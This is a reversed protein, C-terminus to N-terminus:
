GVFHYVVVSKPTDRRAKTWSYKQFIREVDAFSNHECCFSNSLRHSAPRNMIFRQQVFNLQNGNEHYGLGQRLRRDCPGGPRAPKQLQRPVNTKRM